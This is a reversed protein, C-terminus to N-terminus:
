RPPRPTNFVVHAQGASSGDPALTNGVVLDVLGDRDVDGAGDVAWGPYAEDIEGELVLPDRGGETRGFIVYARGISGSAAIVDALGDGDFDGAAGLRLPYGSLEGDFARGASRAELNDLAIDATDAKGFVVLLQSRWVAFVDSLGDGNFDGVGQAGIAFFGESGAPSRVAFGDDGLDALDVTTGSAKGFVVYLNGDYIYPQGDDSSGPEGPAAVVIDDLGDGNVDGAAAIPRTFPDPDEAPLIVFGDSTSLAGVDIPSTSARGFIVYARGPGYPGAQVDSSIVVDGLGDGNVDGVGRASTASRATRRWRWRAAVLVSPTPTRSWSPTATRISTTPWPGKRRTSSSGAITRPATTSTM